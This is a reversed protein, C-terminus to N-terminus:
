GRVDEGSREVPKARLLARMVRRGVPNHPRGRGNLTRGKRKEWKHYMRYATHLKYDAESIDYQELFEEIAMRKPVFPFHYHREDVYEGFEQFYTSRVLKMIQEHAFNNITPLCDGAITLPLRGRQGETANAADRTVRVRLKMIESIRECLEASNPTTHATRPDLKHLLYKRYHAELILEGVTQEVM